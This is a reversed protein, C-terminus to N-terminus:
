YASILSLNLCDLWIREALRYIKKGITGIYFCFFDVAFTSALDWFFSDLFAGYPDEIFFALWNRCKMLLGAM